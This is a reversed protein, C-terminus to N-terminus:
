VKDLVERAFIDNDSNVRLLEESIIFTRSKADYNTSSVLRKFLDKVYQEDKKKEMEIALQSRVRKLDDELDNM